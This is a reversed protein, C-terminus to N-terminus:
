KPAPPIPKAKSLSETEWPADLLHPSASNLNKTVKVKKGGPNAKRPTSPRSQQSAHGSGQGATQHTSTSASNPLTSKPKEDAHACITSVLLVLASVVALRKVM